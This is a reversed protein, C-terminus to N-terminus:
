HEYVRYEWHKFKWNLSNYYDDVALSDFKAIELNIQKILLAVDRSLARWFSRDECVARIKRPLWPLSAELHCEFYLVGSEKKSHPRFFLIEAFEQGSKYSIRIRNKIQEAIYKTLIESYSFNKYHINPRMTKISRRKMVDITFYKKEFGTIIIHLFALV